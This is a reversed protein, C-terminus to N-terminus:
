CVGAIDFTPVARMQERNDFDVDLLEKGSHVNVVKGYEWRMTGALANDESAIRVFDGKKLKTACLLLVSSAVEDETLSGNLSVRLCELVLKRGYQEVMAKVTQDWGLEAKHAIALPDATHSLMEAYWDPRPAESAWNRPKPRGAWASTDKLDAHQM